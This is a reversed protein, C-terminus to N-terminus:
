IKKGKMEYFIDDTFSALSYREIIKKDIKVFPKELFEKPIQPKKRDIVLINNPHYFDYEVIEQNTTILKRNLGLVELTRMTLGTQGPHHIDIVAKSDLFINKVEEANLFSFRFNTIKHKFYAKNMVKRVYFIPKGQLFMIFNTKYKNELRIADLIQLRDSHITGVFSLEYKPTILDDNQQEIKQNFFLPRFHLNYKKCDQMDFSFVDDFYKIKSEMQPYNHISDWMMLKLRTQPHQKKFEQLFWVPVIEGRLVFLYEFRDVKHKELIDSYYAKKRGDVLKPFYRLALKDYFNGRLREDYFVVEYCYKKIEESIITEYNFTRSGIFLIKKM